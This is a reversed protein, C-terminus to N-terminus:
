GTLIGSNRKRESTGVVTSRLLLIREQGTGSLTESGREHMQIM